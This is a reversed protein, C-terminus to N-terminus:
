NLDRIIKQIQDSVDDILDEFTDEEIKVINKYNPVASTKAGKRIEVQVGSDEIELTLLDDEIKLNGSLMERDDQSVTFSGRKKKWEVEYTEKYRGETVTVVAEFVSDSNETVEFTLDNKSNGDDVTVRIEAPDSFDPGAAIELSGEERDSEYDVSLGILQGNSKNIYFKLVAETDEMSDLADDLGDYFNIMLDEADEAYRGGEAISMVKVAVNFFRELKKKTNSERLWDAMDNMIARVADEDAEAKIVRCDVRSGGASIKGDEQSLESHEKLSALFKKGGDEALEELSGRAEKYLSIPSEDLERLMNYINRPLEYDSGSGPAFISKKLDDPLSEFAFGYSDNGLLTDSKVAFAKEDMYLEVDALEKNKMLLSLVLSLRGADMDESLTVDVTGDIGYRVLSSLDLSVKIESQNLEDVIRGPETKKVATLSKAAAAAVQATPDKKAFLFILLVVLGAILLLGGAGALIWPLVKKKRGEPAAEKAPEQPSQPVAWPATGQSSEPSTWPAPEQPVQPATWPAPAEQTENLASQPMLPLPSGCKACFKGGDTEAGCNPCFM